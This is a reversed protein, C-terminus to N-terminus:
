MVRRAVEVPDESGLVLGEPRTTTVVRVTRDVVERQVLLVVGGGALQDGEALLWAPSEVPRHSM